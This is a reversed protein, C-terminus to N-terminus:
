HLVNDPRMQPENFWQIVRYRPEEDVTRVVLMNYRHGSETIKIRLQRLRDEVKAYFDGLAATDNETVEKVQKAQVRLYENLQTDSIVARDGPFYGSQSVIETRVRTEGEQNGVRLIFGYM